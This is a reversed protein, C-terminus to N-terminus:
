RRVEALLMSASVSNPLARRAVVDLPSRPGGLAADRNPTDDPFTDNGGQESCPRPDPGFLEDFYQDFLGGCGAIADVGATGLSSTYVFGWPVPQPGAYSISGFGEIADGAYALGEALDLQHRSVVDAAVHVNDLLTDLAEREDRVLDAASASAENTERLFRRIEDRRGALEGLVAGFDDVITALDQDRAALVESVSRLSSILRRVEQEQDSVVGALRRGGEVLTSVQARQGRTIDTIAVLFEDLAATDTQSLLDQTVEGFEPIDIPVDTREAPIHDGDALLGDWDGRPELEMARAGVLTRLIIRARTADPLEVGNDVRFDVEVHDGALRLGTVQGSRVGAVFVEDGATLGAANTFDATLAYGGRFLGGQVALAGITGLLILGAAILGIVIQNRELFTREM